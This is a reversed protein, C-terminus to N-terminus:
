PQVEREALRALLDLQRDAFDPHDAGVAAEAVGGLLVTRWLDAPIGLRGLATGTFDRVLAPFWGRGHLAHEVGAGWRGAVLGRHGPVPLGAPTHRDLYLAYGLAFRAVDRTPDGQLAGHEWDVVGSVAGGDLLLNGHWFDGHVATRRCGTGALRAAAPGLLERVRRVRPDGPWRLELRALADRLLGVGGVLGASDRQLEALWRAAATFDRGVAAPRATHLWRHYLTRMPMGPAVTCTATVLGDREDRHLLRPVTRGVSPWPQRHLAELLDAEAAVALAAQATSPVKVVHSPRASGAPLVLVVLKANLDRSTALVIQREGAATVGVAGTVPAAGGAAAPRVLLARGPLVRGLLRRPGPRHLARLALDVLPAPWTTGPPVTLVSRCLWALTDPDDDLVLMPQEVSPIALLEREVRLGAREATARLRRGGAPRSGLLLLPEGAASGPLPRGPHDARTARVGPAVATWAFGPAERGPAAVPPSSTM